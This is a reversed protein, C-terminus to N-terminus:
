DLLSSLSSRAEQELIRQYQRASEVVTALHPEITRLNRRVSDNFADKRHSGLVLIAVVEGKSWLPISEFSAWGGDEVAGTTDFVKSDDIGPPLVLSLDEGRVDVTTFQRGRLAALDRFHEFDSISMPEDTRMVLEHEMHLLVGAADCDILRGLISLSENITGHLDDARVGVAVIDNVISAEFLKRDLVECVRALVDGEELSQTPAEIRSLDALARSALASQVADLLEEGMSEKTIFGDAGSRNAWYRDENSNRATLILIPVSQAAPDEKLLRCVVYGHLKPMNIDVLALDPAEEYFKQIAELGDGAVAVEYGAQELLKTLARVLVPSDDAVLVKM